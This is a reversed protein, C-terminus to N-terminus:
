WHRYEFLNLILNIFLNILLYICITYILFILYSVTVALSVHRNDRGVGLSPMKSFLELLVSYNKTLKLSFMVNAM